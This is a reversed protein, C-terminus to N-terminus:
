NRVEEQEEAETEEAEEAQRRKMDRIAELTKVVSMAVCVALFAFVALGILLGATKKDM